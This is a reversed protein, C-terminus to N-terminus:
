LHVELFNRWGCIYFFMIHVYVLLSHLAMLLSGACHPATSYFRTSVCVICSEENSSSSTDNELRKKKEKKESAKQLARISDNFRRVVDDVDHTASPLIYDAAAYSVM